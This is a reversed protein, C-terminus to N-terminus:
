DEGEELLQLDLEKRKLDVAAVRVNLEDGIDFQRGTRSGVIRYNKQDFYYRDDDIAKLRILGECKSEKLEVFLGWETLGSVLGRFSEGVKDQLYEVQKYKISDREADNARKEMNTSHTCMEEMDEKSGTKGEQLFRDLTRHVILDPYRRIPSTFHTYFPFALGYHGINETSYIAKAMSRIAMYSIVSEEPSGKVDHLLKNIAYSAPKGTRFQLKYGFKGAFLSLIKLKEEDPTDHIRYIFPQAEERDGIFAAVRRNALLMMDEILQHADQVIKPIVSLPRGEEDLEFKVEDSEIELSGNKVRNKHLEKALKNITELEQKLPGKEKGDLVAQADEYTFRKDSRTVTKGFWEKKVEGKDDLHFVASFTLKDEDPRLSCVGNSLREPLMPVVRDVLYVSTAREYAEKDVESGPTVYHSVDAIHVGVEHLGNETQRYSIADDFDKADDPDITFTPTERMDRRKAVEEEGIGEEIGEASDLVKKPFKYPLEYEALISHMEVENVGPEGLVERVEGFPSTAEPPWDTIEAIAKQGNKGEGIYKLPIYIDVHMKESDPVLFAFEKSIELTGVFSSRARELVEVVEGEPNKDKSKAYLYVKVSDEDLATNLNKPAIYVDQEIDESIVYGAGKKTMDVKGTVYAVRSRHKYNARGKKLIQDDQVLEDLVKELTQRQEDSRLGLRSAFQKPNFVKNPESSLLEQVDKKLQKKFKGSGKKKKNKKSM